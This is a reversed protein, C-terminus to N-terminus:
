LPGAPAPDGCELSELTPNSRRDYVAAVFFLSFCLDFQEVIQRLARTAEWRNNPQAKAPCVERPASRHAAAHPKSKM